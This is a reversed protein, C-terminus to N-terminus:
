RAPLMTGSGLNRLWNHVSHLKFLLFFVSGLNWVTVTTWLHQPSTSTSFLGASLLDFGNCSCPREAVGVGYKDSGLAM